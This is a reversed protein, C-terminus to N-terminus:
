GSENDRLGLLYRGVAELASLPEGVIKGELRLGPRLRDKARHVSASDLDVTVRYGNPGQVAGDDTSTGSLAREYAVTRVTGALVDIEPETQFAGIHVRVSDGTHVHHVDREAVWLRVQWQNLPSLDLLATGKDIWRGELTEVQETLVVGDSPVRIYCRRLRERLSAVTARLHKIDVRTRDIEFTSFQVADRDARRHDLQALAKRYRSVAADVDLHHGLTHTALLDDVSQNISYQVTVRRLGGRRSWRRRRRGSRLTWLASKMRFAPASKALRCARAPSIEPPLM